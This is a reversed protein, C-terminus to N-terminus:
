VLLVIEDEVAARDEGLLPEEADLMAEDPTTSLLGIGLATTAIGLPVCVRSLTTWRDMEQFFVAAYLSGVVIITSNVVPVVYVAPFRDLCHNLTFLQSLALTVAVVVCAWTFPSTFAHDKLSESMAKAVVQTVSGLMGCLLTLGVRQRGLPANARLCRAWLGLLLAVLVGSCALFVPKLVLAELDRVGYTRSSHNGTLLVVMVGALVVLNCLVTRMSLKEGNMFHALPLGLAIHLGGFPIAVSADIWAFSAVSAGAGLM